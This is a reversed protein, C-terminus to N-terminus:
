SRPRHRIHLQYADRLTSPAWCCYGIFFDEDNGGCGGLVVIATEKEKEEYRIYYGVSWSYIEYGRAQLCKRTELLEKGSNRCPRFQSAISLVPSRLPGGKVALGHVVPAKIRITVHCCLKYKLSSRQPKHLVLTLCDTPFCLLM